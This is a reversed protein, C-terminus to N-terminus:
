NEGKNHKFIKMKVIRRGDIGTVEIIVKGFRIRDGVRPLRGLKNFVLGGLTEFGEDPLELGFDEKLEDVAAMGYVTLTEDSNDIIYSEEADYEDRIEGVIEEVIDEITVLGATGGYEDLVVAMHFKGIKMEMLLQNLKKSEPVYYAERMLKGADFDEKGSCAYDLLDKSYLVGVINDISDEYVPLRSFGTDKAKKIVDRLPCSIHVAVIDIRPVMVEIVCTDDFEFINDIMRSEQQHIIGEEHGVKVLTRIEEETVFPLGSKVEGGFVRIVGTTIYNLAKLFPYLVTSIVLLSRGVKLAVKEGNHSAYTKPTIEGFILIMATMIFTVLVTGGAGGMLRVIFEAAIATAATNALNNGLLTVSLIRSSRDALRAIVDAGRVKKQQMQKVKIHNLSTLATESASFFGSMFLLFALLAIRLVVAYVTM